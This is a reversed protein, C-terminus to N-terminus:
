GKNKDDKHVVQRDEVMGAQIYAKSHQQVSGHMVHTYERNRSGVYIGARRYGEWEQRCRDRFVEGLRRQKINCQKQQAQRSKTGKSYCACSEERAAAAEGATWEHWAKAQRGAAAAQAQQQM